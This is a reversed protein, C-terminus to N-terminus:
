RLTRLIEVETLFVDDAGVQGHSLMELKARFSTRGGHIEDQVAHVKMTTCIVSLVVMSSMPKSSRAAACYRDMTLVTHFLMSEALKLGDFTQVLWNLLPIRETDSFKTHLLASNPFHQQSQQHLHRFSSEAFEGVVAEIDEDPFGRVARRSELAKATSSGFVPKV